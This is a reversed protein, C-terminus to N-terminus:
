APGLALRFADLEATPIAVDHRPEPYGGAAVDGAFAQFAAVRRAQLRALDPAFDEYTKAHRPRHGRTCGLVDEAFLYQADAGSGAGMGLLVLSTRRAIERTVEAPVVEIEAAFAGASELRRVEEMVRMASVATKGVAVFGGTWTVKPPVLGVHGVVPIGECALAEVIRLSGACYVSDAGVKLAAFAARLYDDATAHDGWQLGVQVFCRGTLARAEPTWLALPISLMDIGAEAAARWEEPTDAYLMSMQRVGKLARVEAVTPRATRM